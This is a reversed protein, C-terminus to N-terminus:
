IMKEIALVARRIEVNKIVHRIQAKKGFIEYTLEKSSEDYFIQTAKTTRGAKKKDNEFM